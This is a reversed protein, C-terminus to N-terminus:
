GVTAPSTDSVSPAKTSLWRSMGFAENVPTLDQSSGDGAQEKDAAHETWGAVGFGPIQQQSAREGACHM